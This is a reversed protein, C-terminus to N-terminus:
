CESVPNAGRDILFKALEPQQAKVSVRACAHLGTAGSSTIPGKIADDVDADDM